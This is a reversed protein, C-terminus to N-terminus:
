APASLCGFTLVQARPGACSRRREPRGQSGIITICQIYMYIYIYIYTHVYIYIYIYIINCTHIIITTIILIYCVDNYVPDAFYSERPMSNRGLCHKYTKLLSSVRSSPVGKIKVITIGMVIMVMITVVTIIVLVVIM